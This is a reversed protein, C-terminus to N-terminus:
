RQQYNYTIKKRMLAFPFNSVFRNKYLVNRNYQSKGFYFAIEGKQLLKHNKLLSLIDTIKCM